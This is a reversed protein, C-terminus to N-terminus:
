GPIGASSAFAATPQGSATSGSSSVQAAGVAGSSSARRASSVRVAAACRSGTLSGRHVCGGAGCAAELVRVDLHGQRARLRPGHDLAVRLDRRRGVRAVVGEDDRVALAGLGPVDVAVAEEIECRADGDARGAVRMRADHFRDLLRGPFEQVDRAVVPVLLHGREGLAEGRDHRDALRAHGEEALRARLRDLACQLERAVHRLAAADDGEEAAEVAAGHARQRERGALVRLLRAEERGHGAHRVHGVRIRVARQERAAVLALGHEIVDAHQELAVHRRLFDRRDHDLRQLALAAVEHRRVPEQLAQPLEAVLVPDQEHEVFHLGADAAGALHEARIVRAHRGSM